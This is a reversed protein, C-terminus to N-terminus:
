TETLVTVDVIMGRAGAARIFDGDFVFKGGQAFPLFPHDVRAVFDAPDIPPQYPSGEVIPAPNRPYALPVPTPSPALTPEATAVSATTPAATATVPSTTSTPTCAAVLLSAAIALAGGVRSRRMRSAPM